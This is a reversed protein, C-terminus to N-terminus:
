RTATVAVVRPSRNPAAPAVYRFSRQGGAAEAPQLIANAEGVLPENPIATAVIARLANATADNQITGSQQQEALAEFLPRGYRACCPDHKGHTCVIHLPHEVPM